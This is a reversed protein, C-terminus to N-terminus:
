YRMAFDYFVKDIVSVGKRHAAVQKLAVEPDIDTTLALFAAVVTVSRSLGHSCHVLIRKKERNWKELQLVAENFINLDPNEIRLSIIEADVNTGYNRQFSDMDLCLVADFGLAAASNEKVTRADTIALNSLVYSVAKKM